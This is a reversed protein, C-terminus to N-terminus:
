RGNDIIYFTSENPEPMSMIIVPNAPANSVTVTLQPHKEVANMPNRSRPKELAKLAEAETLDCFVIHGNILKVRTQGTARDILQTMRVMPNPKLMRAGSAESVLAQPLLSDKM